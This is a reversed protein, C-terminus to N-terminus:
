MACDAAVPGVFLKIGAKSETYVRSDGPYLYYDTNEGIYIHLGEEVIPYYVKFNGLCQLFGAAYFIPLAKGESLWVLLYATEEFLFYAYSVRLQNNNRLFSLTFFDLELEFPKIPLRMLNGYATARITLPHSLCLDSGFGVGGTIKTSDKTKDLSLAHVDVQFLLVIIFINFCYRKM